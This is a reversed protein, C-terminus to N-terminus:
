RGSGPERGRLVRAGSRTVHSTVHQAVPPSVHRVPTIDADIERLERKIRALEVLATSCAMQAATHAKRLDASTREVVLALADCEALASAIKASVTVPADGRAM